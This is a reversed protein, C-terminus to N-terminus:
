RSPIVFLPTEIPINASVIVSTEKEKYNSLVDANMYADPPISEWALLKYEDPRIGSMSFRGFSYAIASKYLAPNQRRHVPPILVVTAGAFPIRNADLVVGVVSGGDTRVRVDLPEVTQAGIFIGSDFVSLGSQLIDAVYASSEIPAGPLSVTALPPVAASVPATEARAAQIVPTILRRFTLQFRYQAEPVAPITFAGDSDIVPQFRSVQQYVDLKSSSDDPQLSIHVDNMSPSTGGDVTVRGKINVGHHVDVTVGGQDGGHVDITTRGYAVPQAAHGPPQTPGYGQIDPLSAYLDYVGPLVNPFEFHGNAPDGMTTSVTIASTPDLLANRDYPLLTVVSNV